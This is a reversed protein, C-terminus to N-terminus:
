VKNQTVTTYYVGIKAMFDNIKCVKEPNKLISVHCIFLILIM